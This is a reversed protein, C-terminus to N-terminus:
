EDITYYHWTSDGNKPIDEIVYEDIEYNKTSGDYLWIGLSYSRFHETDYQMETIPVKIELKEQTKTFTQDIITDGSILDQVELRTYPDSINLLRIVVGGGM